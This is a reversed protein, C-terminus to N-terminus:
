IEYLAYPVFLYGLFTYIWSLELPGKPLFIRLKKLLCLLIGM